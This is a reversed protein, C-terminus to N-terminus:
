GFSLQPRSYLTYLHGKINGVDGDVPPGEGEVAGVRRWEEERAGGRTDPVEEMLRARKEATAM